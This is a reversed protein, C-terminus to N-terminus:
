AVINSGAIRDLKALQNKADMLVPTTWHGERAGRGPRVFPSTIDREILDLLDELVDRDLEISVKDAPFLAIHKRIAAYRPAGSRRVRIQQAYTIWGELDWETRNWPATM